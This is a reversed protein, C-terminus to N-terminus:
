MFVCICLIRPVTFFHKDQIKSDEDMKSSIFRSRSLYNLTM